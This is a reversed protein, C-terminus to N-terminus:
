WFVMLIRVCQVMRVFVVCWLGCTCVYVYEVRGCTISRCTTCVSDGVRFAGVLIYKVAGVVCRTEEGRRTGLGRSGESPKAELGM